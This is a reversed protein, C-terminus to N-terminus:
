SQTKDKEFGLYFDPLYDYFYSQTYKNYRIPAKLMKQMYVIYEHLTSLSINLRRALNEPSDTAQRRILSDMRDLLALDVFKKM